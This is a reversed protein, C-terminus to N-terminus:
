KGKKKFQGKSNRGGKATSKKRKKSGGGKKKKATSKKKSKKKPAGVGPIAYGRSGKGPIAMAYRISSFPSGM